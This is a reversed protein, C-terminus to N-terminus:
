RNNLEPAPKSQAQIATAAIKAQANVTNSQSKNELEMLLLHGALEKETTMYNTKLQWETQMEQQKMQSAAQASQIQTQGNAQIKAMEGQQAQMKNRRVKFALMEIAQKANYVNMVYLVDSTDLNGAAMDHQMLQMIAEKQDDTTREDLMIGYDRLAVLKSIEM